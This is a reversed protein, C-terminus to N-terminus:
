DTRFLAHPPRSAVSSQQALAPSYVSWHLSKAHALVQMGTILHSHTALGNAQLGELLEQLQKGDVM